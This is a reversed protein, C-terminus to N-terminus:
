PFNRIVKPGLFNAAFLPLRQWMGIALKYKSNDPNLMPIDKTKNLYYQWVLQTPDAIWKKKFEFTNSNWSSRGFDFYSYGGLCGDKIVRWYLAQNPCLKRYSRYASVSPIYLTDKFTLVLAGAIPKSQSFVLLIRASEPISKLIGEFFDKGWVPTGLDRM